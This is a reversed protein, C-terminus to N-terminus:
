PRPGDGDVEQSDRLLVALAKRGRHVRALVTGRPAGLIDATAAATWGALDMLTIAERQPAPLQALARRVQEAEVAALASLATDSTDPRDLVWEDVLVEQPRASRRRYRSRAANLCITALWAGADDPPRRRWGRLGLLCTEQVLDETDEAGDTLGRALNHLMDVHALFVDVFGDDSV